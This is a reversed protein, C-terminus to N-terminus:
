IVSDSFDVSSPFFTEEQMKYKYFVNTLINLSHPCCFRKLFSKSPRLNIFDDPGSNQFKPFNEPM